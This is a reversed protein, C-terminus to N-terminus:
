EPVRVHFAIGRGELGPGLSLQGGLCQVAQAVIPLGLGSGRARVDRGREFRQFLRAQEAQPIGPGDDAVSLHLAHPADGETPLIQVNLEVRGGDHGYHIANDLLNGLISDLALPELNAWVPEDALLALEIHRADARPLAAILLRRAAEAVDIRQPPRPQPQDLAALTLLQHVLHSARQVAHELAAQAQARQEPQSAACVLHAQASIVALPTRLEHAADQTLTREREIHTRAKTLLAEFSQVLPQLEAYRLDLGLPSADDPARQSVTHVLQRLPRLGRRVSWWLPLLVLPLAIAFSLLLESGLSRLAMGDDPQPELVTLQWQPNHYQEAWYTLGHIRIRGDAPPSEPWHWDAPWGPSAYHPTGDAAQLQFLLPGLAVDSSLRSRNTQQETARLVILAHEPPAPALPLSDLLQQTYNPLARVEPGGLRLALWDIGVLVAFCLALAGLLVAVVRRTLTPQRLAAGYQRLHRLATNM